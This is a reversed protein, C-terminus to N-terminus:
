RVEVEESREKLNDELYEWIKTAMDGTVAFGRGDVLTIEVVGKFRQMRVVQYQILSTNFYETDTKLIVQKPMKPVMFATPIAPPNFSQLVRPALKKFYELAAEQPDEARIEDSKMEELESLYEVANAIMDEVKDIPVSAWNTLLSMTEQLSLKM